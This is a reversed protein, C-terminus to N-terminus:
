TGRPLGWTRDHSVRIDTYWLVLGDSQCFSDVVGNWGPVIPAVYLFGPMPLVMSLLALVTTIGISYGVFPQRDKRIGINVARRLDLSINEFSNPGAPWAQADPAHQCARELAEAGEDKM